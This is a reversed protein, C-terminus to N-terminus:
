QTPLAGATPNPKQLNPEPNLYSNLAGAGTSLGIGVGKILPNPALTALSGAAGIVPVSARGIEDWMHSTDGRDYYERAKQIHNYADAGQYGASGLALPMSISPVKKAINGVGSLASKVRNFINGSRKNELEAKMRELSTEEEAIAQAENNPLIIGSRHTKFKAKEEPTLSKETRYNQAAETVSNGGPGMSGVVKRNWKDGSLEENSIGSVEVSSSPQNSMQARRIAEELQKTRNEASWNYIDKGQMPVGIATGTALGATGWLSPNAKERVPYKQSDFYTQDSKKQEDTKETELPHIEHIRKIYDLTEDPLDKPDHTEFYKHNPGANYAISSLMKDGGFNDLHQKLYTIGGHINEDINNPDVKLMSATNPMLQMPGIAGKPSTATGFKNEQYALALAYDPDVNQRTAEAAIKNAINLQEDNLKTVDFSMM